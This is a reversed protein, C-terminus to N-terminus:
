RRLWDVLLGETAAKWTELFRERITLDFEDNEAFHLKIHEPEFWFDLVEEWTAIIMYIGGKKDKILAFKLGGNNM